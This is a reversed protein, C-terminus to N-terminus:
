GNPRGAWQSREEQSCNQPTLISVPSIQVPKLELLPQCLIIWWSAKKGTLIQALYWAIKHMLSLFAAWHSLRCFKQKFLVPSPVSPTARGSDGVSLDLVM